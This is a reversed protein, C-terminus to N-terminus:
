CQRRRSCSRCCASLLLLPAASLAATASITSLQRSKCRLPHARGLVTGRCNAETFARLSVKIDAGKEGSEKLAELQPLEQVPDIESDPLQVSVPPPFCSAATVHGSLFIILCCSGPLARHRAPRYQASLNPLLRWIAHVPLKGLGLLGVSAGAHARVLGTVGRVLQEFNHQFSGQAAKSLKAKDMKAQFLEWPQMHPVPLCALHTLVM